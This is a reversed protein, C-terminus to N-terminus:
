IILFFFFFILLKMTFQVLKSDFWHLSKIIEQSLFLFDNCKFNSFFFFIYITNFYIFYKLFTLNLFFNDLTRAPLWNQQHYLFLYVVAIKFYM